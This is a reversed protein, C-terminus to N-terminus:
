PAPTVYAVGDEELAPWAYAVDFIFKPQDALWHGAFFTFDSFSWSM